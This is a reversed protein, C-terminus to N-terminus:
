IEIGKHKVQKEKPKSKDIHENLKSQLHLVFGKLQTVADWQRRTWELAEYEARVEPDALLEAKFDEYKISKQPIEGVPLPRTDPIHQERVYPEPGGFRLDWLKGCRSCEIVDISFDLDTPRDLKGKCSPCNIIM